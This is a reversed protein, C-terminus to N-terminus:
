PARAPLVGAVRANYDHVYERTGGNGRRNIPSERFEQADVQRSEGACPPESISMRLASRCPKAAAIVGAFKNHHKTPQTSPVATPTSGPMSGATATAVTSGVVALTSTVDDIIKKAPM